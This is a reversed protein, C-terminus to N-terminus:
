LISFVIYSTLDASFAFTIDYDFFTFTFPIPFTYTDPYVPLPGPSCCHTNDCTCRLAGPYSM